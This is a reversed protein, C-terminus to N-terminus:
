KTKIGLYKVIDESLERIKGNAQKLYYGDEDWTIESEMTIDLGLEKAKKIIEKTIKVTHAGLRDYLSDVDEDGGITKMVEDMGDITGSMYTNVEEKVSESFTDGLTDDVLKSMSDKDLGLEACGTLSFLVMAIIVVIIVKSLKNSTYVSM